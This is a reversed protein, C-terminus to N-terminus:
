IILKGEAEIISDFLSIKDTIISGILRNMDIDLVPDFFLLGSKLEDESLIGIKPQQSMSITYTNLGLIKYINGSINLVLELNYVILRTALDPSMTSIMKKRMAYKEAYYDPLEINETLDLYRNFIDFLNDNFYIPMEIIGLNDSIVKMNIKIIKKENLRELIQKWTKIRGNNNIISNQFINNDWKNLGFDNPNYNRTIYEQFFQDNCIERAYIDSRCINLITQIDLMHIIRRYADAPVNQFQNM